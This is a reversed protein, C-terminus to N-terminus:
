QRAPQRSGFLEDFRLQLGCFATFVRVDPLSARFISSPMWSGRVVFGLPGHEGTFGMAFGIQSETYREERQFAARGVENDARGSLRFVPELGGFVFMRLGPANPARLSYRGAMLLSVYDLRLALGEFSADKSMLNLELRFGPRYHRDADLWGGVILASGGAVPAGDPTSTLSSAGVGVHAGVAFSRQTPASSSSGSAPQAAAPLAVLIAPGTLALVRLRM